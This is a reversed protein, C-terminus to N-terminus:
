GWAERVVMSSVEDKSNIEIVVVTKRGCNPCKIVQKGHLVTIRREACGCYLNIPIVSGEKMGM